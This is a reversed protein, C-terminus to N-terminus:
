NLYTIKMSLLEIKLINNIEVVLDAIMWKRIHFYLLSSKPFEGSSLFM